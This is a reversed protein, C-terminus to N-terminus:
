HKYPQKRTVSRLRVNDNFQLDRKAAWAGQTESRSLSAGRSSQWTGFGPAKWTESQRFPVSKVVLELAQTARAETACSLRGDGLGKVCTSVALSVARATFRADEDFSKQKPGSPM